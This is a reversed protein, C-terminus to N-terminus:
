NQQNYYTTTTPLYSHIHNLLIKLRHKHLYDACNQINNQTVGLFVCAEVSFLQLLFNSNNSNECVVSNLLEYCCILGIKRSSCYLVIKGLKQDMMRSSTQVAEIIKLSSLASYVHHIPCPEKSQYKQYDKIWRPKTKTTSAPSLVQFKHDLFHWGPM